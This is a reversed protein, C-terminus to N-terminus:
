AERGPSQNRNGQHTYCVVGQGTHVYEVAQLLVTLGGLRMQTVNKLPGLSPILLIEM